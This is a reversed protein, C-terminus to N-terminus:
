MSTSATRIPMGLRTTHRSEPNPVYSRSQPVVDSRPMTLPSSVTSTSLSPTCEPAGAADDRRAEADRTLEERAQFVLEGSGDPRAVEM